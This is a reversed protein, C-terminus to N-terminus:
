GGLQPRRLRSKGSCDSTAGSRAHKGAIISNAVLATPTDLPQPVFAIGGGSGVGDNDSDAVNGTITLNRIQHGSAYHNPLKIGGGDGTAFNGSVTTNSAFLVSSGTIYIGGGTSGRNGASLQIRLTSSVILVSVMGSGLNDAITSRRIMFHGHLSHVIGGAGNRAILSREITGPAFSDRIGLGANDVITSDSVSLGGGMLAYYGNGGNQRVISHVLALSGSVHGIGHGANLEVSVDQLTVSGFVVLLGSATENPSGYRIALGSLLFREDTGSSPWLTMVRDNINGDTQIFSVDSGLGLIDVGDRVNLDGTAGDNEEAGPITLVQAGAGL